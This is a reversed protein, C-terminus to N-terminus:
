RRNGQPGVPRAGTYGGAAQAEIPSSHQRPNRSAISVAVGSAIIILIALLSTWPLHEDWLIVGFLSSFIVTSYALNASVITKGYRYARTMALQACGGFGGVGLLIAAETPSIAHISGSSLAWPLGFAATILSVM